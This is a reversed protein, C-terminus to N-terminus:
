DRINRGTLKLFVDELCNCDCNEKILESPNGTTIIEGYDIISIRDCLRQADDLFHSTYIITTGGTKLELLFEHIVTRTQVDVGAAPEDLYLIKPNHLLGALLNIRRKMGGSLNKIKEKKSKILGLRTLLHDIKKELTQKDIGYLRGFYYLNEYATLKDYLAIDQSVVGVLTKIKNLENVLDFGSIKIKGSTPNILGSLVSITTTKGAGNPGLLGFIEGNYIKLNLKKVAPEKKGKYTKVFDQIDIIAQSTM